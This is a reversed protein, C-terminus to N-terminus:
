RGAHCLEDRRRASLIRRTVPRRASGRRSLLARDPLLPRLRVDDAVAQIAAAGAAPRLVQGSSDAVAGPLGAGRGAVLGDPDPDPVRLFGTGEDAQAHFRRHRWPDHHEPATKRPAPRPLPVEATHGGSIGT